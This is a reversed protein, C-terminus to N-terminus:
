GMGFRELANQVKYAELEGHGAVKDSFEASLDRPYFGPVHIVDISRNILGRLSDETLERAIEIPKLM